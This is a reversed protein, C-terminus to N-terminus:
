GPIVIKDGVSLNTDNLVVSDLTTQGTKVPVDKVDGTKKDEVKVFTQGNKFYIARIPVSIEADGGAEIAVKASMGMHIISQQAPTLKTVVVEVSFTPLGGQSTQAQHDLGSIKGALTFDPFASGTVSVNQGVKLQNINFESVNIHIKLGSVDGIVALVDGQKVQDGQFVRTVEGDNGDKKNPLLVVGIQPAVIQLTQAADQAQLLQAIKDIDEIKLSFLDVNKFNIQKLLVGLAAKAQIMTLEANYYATKKTKFDDDSILQNKHLFVSENYQSQSDMFDNKAKIYQMLATKYDTQFKDSSLTFLIQGPKAIDGYHFHMQEVVGDVPSTVVAGNLPEIIGSYFLTTTQPKNEVTIVQDHRSVQTHRHRTCTSFIVACILLVVIVKMNRKVVFEEHTDSKSM